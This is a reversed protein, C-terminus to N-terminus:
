PPASTSGGVRQGRGDADGAATRPWVQMLRPFDTRQLPLPVTPSWLSRLCSVSCRCCPGMANSQVGPSNSIFPSWLTFAPLSRLRQSKTVTYVPQSNLNFVLPAARQQILSRTQGASRVPLSLKQYVLYVSLFQGTGVKKKKIFRSKM